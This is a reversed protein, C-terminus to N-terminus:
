NEFEFRTVGRAGSPLQGTVTIEEIDYKSPNFRQSSRKDTFVRQPVVLTQGKGLPSDRFLLYQGNIDLSLRPIDFETLNSVVVVETIVAGMGNATEVPQRDLRVEVPLSPGGVSEPFLAYVSLGVAVMALLSLILGLRSLQLTPAINPNSENRDSHAPSATM